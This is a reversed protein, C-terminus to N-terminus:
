PQAVTVSKSFDSLVGKIRVAGSLLFRSRLGGFRKCSLAQM